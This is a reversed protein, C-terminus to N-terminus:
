FKGSRIFISSKNLVLFFPDYHLLLCRFNGFPSLADGMKLIERVTM